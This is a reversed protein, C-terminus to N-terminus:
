CSALCDHQSTLTLMHASHLTQPSLRVGNQALRHEALDDPRGYVRTSLRAAPLPLVADLYVPHAFYAQDPHGEQDRTHVKVFTRTLCAPRVLRSCSAHKSCRM